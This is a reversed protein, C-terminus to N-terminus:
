KVTVNTFQAKKAGEMIFGLKYDGKGFLSQGIKVKKSEVVIQFELIGEANFIQVHSIDQNMVFELNKENENYNVSSFNNPQDANSLSVFVKHNELLKIGPKPNNNAFSASVIFLFLISSAILNKM